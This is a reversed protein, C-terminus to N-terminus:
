QNPLRAAEAGCASLAALVFIALSLLTKLPHMSVFHAEASSLGGFGGPTGHLEDTSREETKNFVTRGDDRAETVLELVTQQVLPDLGSTPEDLILLDPRGMFAM